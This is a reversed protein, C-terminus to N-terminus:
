KKNLIYAKLDESIIYIDDQLQELDEHSLAVVLKKYPNQYLGKGKYEKNFIYVGPIINQGNHQVYSDSRFRKPYKPSNEKGLKGALNSFKDEKLNSIMEDLSLTIGAKKAAQNLPKKLKPKDKYNARKYQDLINLYQKRDSDEDEKINGRKKLEGKMISSRLKASRGYGKYDTSDIKSIEGKLEEDSMNKIEDGDSTKNKLGGHFSTLDYIGSEKLNVSKKLNERWKNGYLKKMLSVLVKTNIKEGDASYLKDNKQIIHGDKKIYDQLQQQLKTLNKNDEENVKKGKESDTIKKLMEEATDNINGYMPSNPLSVNIIDGFNQMEYSGAGGEKDPLDLSFINKELSDKNLTVKVNLYKSMAQALTNAPNITSKLDEDNVKKGKELDTIKKLMEEASDNINGYMPSNPLSINIIDGFNQMEYSGAGGEEDPLDLSFINKELSDKNLTVKVNLHKSMAQALTNAPNITSKLDEDITEDVEIRDKYFDRQAKGERNFADAILEKLKEFEKPSLEIPTYNGDKFYSSIGVYRTDLKDRFGLKSLESTDIRDQSTIIRVIFNENEKKFQITSHDSYNINKYDRYGEKEEGWEENLEKVPEPYKKQLQKKPSHTSSTEDENMNYGKKNSLKLGRKVAYKIADDPSDFTMDIQASGDPKELIYHHKKDGERKGARSIMVEDGKNGMYGENTDEEIQEGIPIYGLKTDYKGIKEELKFILNSISTLARQWTIDSTKALLEEIKESLAETHTGVEDWIYAERDKVNDEETLPPNQLVKRVLEKLNNKNMEEIKKRGQKTAIGYMVKEADAGYKKVLASKNQKLGQIARERAEVENDSLKSENLMM